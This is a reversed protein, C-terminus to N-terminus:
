NFDSEHWGLSILYAKFDPDINGLRIISERDSTLTQSTRALTFFDVMPRYVTTPDLLYVSLLNKIDDKRTAGYETALFKAYQYREFRYQRYAGILDAHHIAKQFLDEAVNPPGIGVSVLEGLARAELLYIPVTDLSKQDPDTGGTRALDANAKAVSQNIIAIESIAEPTTTARLRQTVDKAYFYAVRGESIGLPYISAAYEFLKRYTLDLDSSDKFTSYPADKFTEAVIEDRSKVYGVYMVGMEQVAYARLIPYNTPDDAVKKFERIAETYNGMLEDIIGINYQIQATQVKDHASSLAKQYYQLADANKGAKQYQIATVYDPNEKYLVVTPTNNGSYKPSGLKGGYLLAVAIVALIAITCIATIVKGTM